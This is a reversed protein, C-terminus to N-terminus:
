EEKKAKGSANESTTGFEHVCLEEFSIDNELAIDRLKQFRDMVESPITGGISSIWSAQFQLPHSKAEPKGVYIDIPRQEGGFDCPITFKRM